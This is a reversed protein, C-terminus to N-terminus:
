CITKLGQEHSPTWNRQEARLAEVFQVSWPCLKEFTNPDTLLRNASVWANSVYRHQDGPHRIDYEGEGAVAMHLSRCDEGTTPTTMFGLFTTCRFGASVQRGVPYLVAGKLAAESAKNLTSIVDIIGPATITQDQICEHMVIDQHDVGREMGLSICDSREDRFSAFMLEYATTGDPMVVTVPKSIVSFTLVPQNSSDIGLHRTGAMVAFGDPLFFYRTDIGGALQQQDTFTRGDVLEKLESRVLGLTLGMDETYDDPHLM